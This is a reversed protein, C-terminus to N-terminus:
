VPTDEEPVKVDEPSTEDRSEIKHRVLRTLNGGDIYRDDTLGMWETFKWRADQNKFVLVCYFEQESQEKIGDLMQGYRNKAEEIQNGLSELGKNIEEDANFGFLKFMDANDFGAAELEFDEGKLLTKLKELDWDGQAEPNNLLVNIEKERKEDVDVVAVTLKYNSSGELSDLQTIRQHGGVIRGTQKNWVIPQVLGM